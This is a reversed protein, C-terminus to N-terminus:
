LEEGTKQKFRAAVAERNAGRAIADNARQREGAVDVGATGPAAPTEGGMGLEGRIVDNYTKLAPYVAELGKQEQKLTKLGVELANKIGEYARLDGRVIPALIQDEKRTLAKGATEFEKSRFYALTLILNLAEKDDRFAVEAARTDIALLATLTNWKNERNLRDLVPMAEEIKPILNNRLTNQATVEKPIKQTAGATKADAAAQAAALRQDLMSQQAGLRIDQLQMQQSFRERMANAQIQAQREANLSSNVMELAKTAAAEGEKVTEYAGLLDGRRIQAKVIESGAKVAALDAAQLGAQRNTQALKIADDMEKRFESHKQLM